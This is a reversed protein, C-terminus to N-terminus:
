YAAPVRAARRCFVACSGSPRMLCRRIAQASMARAQQRCIQAHLLLIAEVLKSRAATLLLTLGGVDIKRMSRGGM